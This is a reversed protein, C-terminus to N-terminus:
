CLLFSFHKNIEWANMCESTIGLLLLLHMSKYKCYHVPLIDIRCYTWKLLSSLLVCAYSLFVNFLFLFHIIFILRTIFYAKLIDKFAPKDLIRIMCLDLLCCVRLMLTVTHLERCPSKGDRYLQIIIWNSNQVGKYVPVYDFHITRTWQRLYMTNKKSWSQYTIKKLSVVFLLSTVTKSLSYM